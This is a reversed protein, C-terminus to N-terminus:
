ESKTSKVNDYADQPVIFSTTLFSEIVEDLRTKLETKVIPIMEPDISIKDQSFKYGKIPKLPKIFGTGYEIRQADPTKFATFSVTSFASAWSKIPNGQSFLGSSILPKNTPYGATMTKSSEVYIIVDYQDKLSIVWNKVSKKLGWFDYISGKKSLVTDPISIESVTYKSSLFQLLQQEVYNKCNFQCSFTDTKNTFITTGLHIHLLTTDMINVVAIKTMQAFSNTTTFCLFCIILFKCILINIKKM